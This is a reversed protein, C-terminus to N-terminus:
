YIYPILTKSRKMYDEYQKGFKEILMREEVEIRYIFSPICLLMIAFGYLSSFFLPVGLVSPLIGAYVPNRLHNYIGETVLKHYEIIGLRSSFYKGLTRIAQVRIVMGGIFLILGTAILIGFRFVSKQLFVFDLASILVSSITPLTSFFYFYEDERKM